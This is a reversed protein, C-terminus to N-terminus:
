RDISDSVTRTGYHRRQKLLTEIQDRTLSHHDTAGLYGEVTERLMQERFCKTLMEEALRSDSLSRIYEEWYALIEELPLKKGLELAEETDSPILM